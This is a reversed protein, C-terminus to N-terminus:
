PMATLQGVFAEALRARETEPMADRRAIMEARLASKVNKTPEAM